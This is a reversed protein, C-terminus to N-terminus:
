LSPLSAAKRSARRPRPSGSSSSNWRRARVTNSGSTACRTVAPPLGHARLREVDEGAREIADAEDLGRGAGALGPVQAAEVQAQQELAPELHLLNEDDGEGVGGSGLQALADAAADDLGEVLQAAHADFRGVGEHAIEQLCQAFVVPLAVVVHPATEVAGQLREVLRGDESDVAEALAGEGVQREHGPHRHGELQDDVVGLKAQGRHMVEPAAAKGAIGQGGGEGAVQQGALVARGIVGLQQLLHQGLRERPHEPRALEVVVRRIAFVEVGAAELAVVPRGLRDPRALALRDDLAHIAGEEAEVLVLVALAVDLLRSRLPALEEGGVIRKGHRRQEVAPQVKEAARRQHGVLALRRDPRVWEEHVRLCEDFSVLAM